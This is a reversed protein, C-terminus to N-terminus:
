DADTESDLFFYPGTTPKPKKKQKTKTKQM